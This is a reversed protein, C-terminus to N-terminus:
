CLINILFISLSVEVQWFSSPHCLTASVSPGMPTGLCSKSGVLQTKLMQASVLASLSAHYLALLPSYVEQLYVSGVVEHRFGSHDGSGQSNGDVPPDVCSLLGSNEYCTPGPSLHSSDESFLVRLCRKPEVSSLQWEVTRHALVWQGPNTIIDSSYENCCQKHYFLSQFGVM